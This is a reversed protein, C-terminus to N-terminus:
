QLLRPSGRLRIWRCPFPPERIARGSVVGVSLIGAIVVRTASTMAESHVLIAETRDVNQSSTTAATVAIPPLAITATESRDLLWDGIPSGTADTKVAQSSYGTSATPM